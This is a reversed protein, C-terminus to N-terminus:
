DDGAVTSSRATPSGQTLHVVEGYGTWSWILESKGSILDREKM